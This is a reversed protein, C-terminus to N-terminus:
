RRFPFSDYIYSNAHTSYMKNIPIWGNQIYLQHNQDSTDYPSALIIYRNDHTAYYELHSHKPPSEDIFKWIYKPTHRVFKKINYEEVFANRNSFIAPDEQNERVTFAGWYSDKFIAPYDTAQYYQM